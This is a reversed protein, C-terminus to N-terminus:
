NITINNSRMLNFMEGEKITDRINNEFVQYGSVQINPAFEYNGLFRIPNHSSYSKFDLIEINGNLRYNTINSNRVGPIFFSYLSYYDKCNNIKISIKSNKNKLLSNFNISYGNKANNYSYINNLNVNILTENSNNPELDIGSMPLTGNTNSLVINKVTIDKGSIISIGNRRNDDVIGGSIIINEPLIGRTGIYIGDGWCQTVKPNIININKSGIINIGMGWEGKNGLHKYRDGTVKVNYLNINSKNVINIIGYNTKDNPQMVINSKSQFVISTNSHVSVGKVNVLIPFNPMLIKKENDLAKQIYNTYDINGKKSYGKPLYSTIDRYGSLNLDAVSETKILNNPVKLYKFTSDGSNSCNIIFFLSFILLTYFKSKIM